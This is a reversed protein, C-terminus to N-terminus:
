NGCNEITKQEAISHGICTIFVFFAFYYSTRPSTFNFCVASPSFNFPLGLCSGTWVATIEPCHRRFHESGIAWFFIRYHDVLEVGLSVESFLHFCNEQRCCSWPLTGEFSSQNLIPETPVFLRMFVMAWFAPILLSSRWFWLPLFVVIWVSLPFSKGGVRVAWNSPCLFRFLM